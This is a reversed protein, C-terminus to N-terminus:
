ADHYHRHGESLTSTFQFPVTSAKPSKFQLYLKLFSGCRKGSDTKVLSLNLNCTHEKLFHSPRKSSLSHHARSKQSSQFAVTALKMNEGLQILERPNIKEWVIRFSMCSSMNDTQPKKGWWGQHWLGLAVKNESFSKCCRTQSSGAQSYHYPNQWKNM